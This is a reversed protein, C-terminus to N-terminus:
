NHFSSKELSQCRMSTFRECPPRQCRMSTFRKTWQPSGKVPHDNVGCQPSGKVPHDNVGCQPSGKVPRNNWIHSEFLIILLKMSSQLLMTLMVSTTCKRITGKFSVRNKNRCTGVPDPQTQILLAMLECSVTALKKYESSIFFRKVMHYPAGIADKLIVLPCYLWTSWQRSIAWTSSRSSTTQKSDSESKVQKWRYSYFLCLWIYIWILYIMWTVM